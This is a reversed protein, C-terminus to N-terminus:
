QNVPNLKQDELFLRKAEEEAWKEREEEKIQLLMAYIKTKLSNIQSGCENIFDNVTKREYKELFNKLDMGSLSDATRALEKLQNIKEIRTEFFNKYGNLSVRLIRRKIEEQCKLRDITYQLIAEVM